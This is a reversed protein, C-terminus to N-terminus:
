KYTIFTTSQECGKIVSTPHNYLIAKLPLFHLSHVPFTAVEVRTHYHDFSLFGGVHQNNSLNPNINALVHIRKSIQVDYIILVQFQIQSEFEQLELTELRSFEVINFDALKV